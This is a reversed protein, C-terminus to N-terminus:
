EFIHGGEPVALPTFDYFKTDLTVYIKRALPTGDTALPLLKHLQDVSGLTAGLRSSSFTAVKENQRELDPTLSGLEIDSDQEDLKLLRKLM